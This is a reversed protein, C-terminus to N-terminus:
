ARPNSVQSLMFTRSPVPFCRSVDIEDVCDPGAALAMAYTANPRTLGFVNAFTGTIMDEMADPGCRGWAYTYPLTRVTNFLLLRVIVVELDWGFVKRAVANIKECGDQCWNVGSIFSLQTSSRAHTACPRAHVQCRRQVDSM